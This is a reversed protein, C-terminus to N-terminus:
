PAILARGARVLERLRAGARRLLAAPGEAAAAGGRLRDLELRARAAFEAREPREELALYRELAAAAAAEQGLELRAMALGYYPDPERPRLALYAEYCLVALDPRGSRRYAFALAYWAPAHRPHRLTLRALRDIVL